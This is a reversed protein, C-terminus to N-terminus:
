PYKVYTNPLNGKRMIHRRCYGTMVIACLYFKRNGINWDWWKQGIDRGWFFHELIRYLHQISFNVREMWVLVLCHLFYRKVIDIWLLPNFIHDNICAWLKLNGLSLNFRLLHRSIIERNGLGRTEIKSYIIM